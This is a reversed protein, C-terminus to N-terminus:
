IYAYHLTGHKGCELIPEERLGEDMGRLARMRLVLLKAGREM